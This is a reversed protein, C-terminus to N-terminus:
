KPDGGGDANHHTQGVIGYLAIDILTRLAEPWPKGSASIFEPASIQQTMNVLLLAVFGSDVNKFEGQEIGEDIYRRVVAVGAVLHDTLIRMAPRYGATDTSSERRVIGMRMNM